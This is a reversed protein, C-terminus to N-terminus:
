DILGWLVSYDAINRFGVKEATLISPINRAWCDWHATINQAFCREAFASATLTALGQRQYPAVTEIGIGIHHAYVYEGTCWCAIEDGAIACYGFARDCFADLSPWMSQIEGTVHALNALHTNALLPRNIPVIRFGHPVHARWDPMNLSALAYLSRPVTVVTREPFMAPLREIWGDASYYAILFSNPAPAIEQRIVQRVGNNYAENDECGAVYYQSGESWLFASKPNTPDDVWIRGRANGAVLSKIVSHLFLTDFLPAVTGFTEPAIEICM